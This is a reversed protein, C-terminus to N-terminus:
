LPTGGPRADQGPILLTEGSDDSEAAPGNQILYVLLFCALIVGLGFVLHWGDGLRATRGSIAWVFILGGVLAAMEPQGAWRSLQRSLAGCRWAMSHCVHLTDRM